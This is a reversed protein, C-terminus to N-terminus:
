ESGEKGQAQVKDYIGDAQEARALADIPSAGLIADLHVYLREVEARSLVIAQMEFKRRPLHGVGIREVLLLEDPGYQDAHLTRTPEPKNLKM